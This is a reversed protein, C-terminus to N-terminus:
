DAKEECARARGSLGISSFYSSAVVWSDSDKPSKSLMSKINYLARNSEGAVILELTEEEISKEIEQPSSEEARPNSEESDNEQTSREDDSGFKEEAWLILKPWKGEFKDLRKDISGVMKDLEEGQLNATFISELRSHAEERSLNEVSDPNENSNQGEVSTDTVQDDQDVPKEEIAEEPKGYKQEAWKLLGAWKGEFKDLRKEISALAKDLEEGEMSSSFIETLRLSVEERSLEGAM